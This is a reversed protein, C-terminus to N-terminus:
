QVQHHDGPTEECPHEAARALAREAQEISSNSNRRHHDAVLLRALCEILQEDSDNARMDGVRNPTM